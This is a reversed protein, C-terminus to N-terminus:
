RFFVRAMVIVITQLAQESKIAVAQLLSESVGDIAVKFLECHEVVFRPRQITQLLEPREMIVETTVVTRCNTVIDFSQKIGLESRKLIELTGLFFHRSARTSLSNM